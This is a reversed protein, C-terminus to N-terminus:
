SHDTIYKQYKQYKRNLYIKADEYILNLFRKANNQNSHISIFYMKAFGQKQYNTLTYEIKYDDLSKSIGEIMKPSASWYSLGIIKPNNGTYSLGGDGDFYGRLFPIVYKKDIDPFGMNYTKKNSLGLNVLDNYMKISYVEIRCIHSSILENERISSKSWYDIIKYNGGISKNFKKLHQIDSYQISIGVVGANNKKHSIWGDACIFGLWYAKQETDINEFYDYQCHYPTKKINMKKAHVTVASETRNFHQALEKYTMDKYHDLLYQNEQDTWKNNKTLGLKGFLAQIAIESTNFHRAFENKTMCKYNKIVFQKMSDTWKTNNKQKKRVLDLSKCKKIISGKSHCVIKSLDNLSYDDIHQKIFIIEDSTWKREKFEKRKKLELYRCSCRQRVSQESRNLQTAIKSYPYKNYNNKLYEDEQKTWKRAM